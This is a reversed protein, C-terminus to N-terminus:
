SGLRTITFRHAGNLPAFQVINAEPNTTGKEQQVWLDITDGEDLRFEDSGAFTATGSATRLLEGTLLRHTAGNVFYLLNFPTDVGAAGVTVRVKAGIRHV